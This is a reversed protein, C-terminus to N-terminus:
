AQRQVVVFSCDTKEVDAKVEAVERELTRLIELDEPDTGVSRLRAIRAELPAYYDTWWVGPPLRLRHFVVLGHDSFMETTSEFWEDTEFMVLYGGTRLVRACEALVRHAELQHFVGEDWVIDFSSPAFGADFISCCMTRVQDSLKRDAINSRLTELAEDNPDVGVIDGGSLRALELTPLGTGCGVDLIRPKEIAPLSRYAARTYELFASRLGDIGLEDLIRTQAMKELHPSEQSNDRTQRTIAVKENM